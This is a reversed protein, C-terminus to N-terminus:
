NNDNEEYNIDEKPLEFEHEYENDDLIRGVRSIVENAYKYENATYDWTMVYELLFASAKANREKLDKNEQELEKVREALKIVDETSKNSIKSLEQEM